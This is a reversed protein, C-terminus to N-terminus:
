RGWTIKELEDYILEELEGTVTLTVASRILRLDHEQLVADANKPNTWEKRHKWNMLNMKKMLKLLSVSNDVPNIICIRWRM